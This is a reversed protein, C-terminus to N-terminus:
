FKFSALVAEFEKSLLSNSPYKSIVYVDTGSAIFYQTAPGEALDATEAIGSKNDVTVAFRSTVELPGGSERSQAVWSDLSLGDPNGLVVFEAKLKDAPVPRGADEPLVTAPNYSYL